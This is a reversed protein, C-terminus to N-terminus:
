REGRFNRTPIGCIALHVRYLMIHNLKDTGRAVPTTGITRLGALGFFRDDSSGITRLGLLGPRDYEGPVGRCIFSVAVYKVSINNFTSNFVM